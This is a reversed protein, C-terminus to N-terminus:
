LVWRRFAHAQAEYVVATESSFTKCRRWLPTVLCAEIYKYCRKRGSRPTFWM